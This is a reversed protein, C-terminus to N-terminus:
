ISILCKNFAEEKCYGTIDATEDNWENVNGDVNIRFIPAYAMEVLQRLENAIVTVALDNKNSETVDQAVGVVGIVNNESDRRTTTNILLFEGSKTRVELECNSTENKQLTDV